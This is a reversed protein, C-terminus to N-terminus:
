YYEIKRISVRIPEPTLHPEDPDFRETVQETWNGHSDFTYRYRHVLYPKGRRFETEEVVNGGDDYRYECRTPGDDTEDRQEVLRGRSDYIRTLSGFTKTNSFNRGQFRNGWYRALDTIGEKVDDGDRSVYRGPQYEGDWERVLQFAIGSKSYLTSATTNGFADFTMGQVLWAPKLVFRRAEDDFAAERFYEEVARVPGRLNENERDVLAMASMAGFSVTKRPSSELFIAPVCFNLNQGGVISAVAVGVVEGRDNLVPGGSSGPSIAADIQILNEARRIASIIGKSLTGELGKPNGVVWVDDGLREGGTTALPLGPGQSAVRLLCLDHVRSVMEVSLIHFETGSNVRRVRADVARKFVHLNTAILSSTADGVFFGSGLGVPSGKSDMTEILVVSPLAREILQRATLPRHAGRDPRQGAVSTPAIALVFILALHRLGVRSYTSCWM